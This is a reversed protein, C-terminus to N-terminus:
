VSGVCRSGCFARGDDDWRTCARGGRSIVAVGVRCYWVGRVAWLRVDSQVISWSMFVLGGGYECFHLGVCGLGAVVKLGDRLRQMSVASGGSWGVGSVNFAGWPAIATRRLETIVIVCLDSEAVGADMSSAIHETRVVM